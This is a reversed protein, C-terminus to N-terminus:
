ALRLAGYDTTRTAACAAVSPALHVPYVPTM